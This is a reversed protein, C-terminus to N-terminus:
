RAGKLQELTDKLNQRLLCCQERNIAKQLSDMAAPDDMAGIGISAADRICANRSELAHELMALRVQQTDGDEMRGVWILAEAATQPNVSDAYMMRELTNIAAIGHSKIIRNLSDSFGSEMGDEFIEYNAKHLMSGVADKLMGQDFGAKIAEHRSSEYSEKRAPEITDRTSMAWAKADQVTDTRTESEKQGGPPEAIHPQSTTRSRTSKTGIIKTISKCPDTCPLEQQQIDTATGDSSGQYWRRPQDPRLSDINGLTSAGQQDKSAYWPSTSHRGQRSDEDM